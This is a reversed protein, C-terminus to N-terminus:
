RATKDEAFKNQILARLAAHLDDQSLRNLV